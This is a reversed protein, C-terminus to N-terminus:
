SISPMSSICTPLDALRLPGPLDRVLEFFRLAPPWEMLLGDEDPSFGSTVYDRPHATEDISTIVDYRAGVLDRTSVLIEHLVTDFDLSSNICLVAASLRPLFERM